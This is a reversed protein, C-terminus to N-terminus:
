STLFLMGVTIIFLLAFVTLTVQERNEHKHAANEILGKKNTVKM